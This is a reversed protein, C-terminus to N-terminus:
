GGQGQMNYVYSVPAPGRKLLELKVAVQSNGFM